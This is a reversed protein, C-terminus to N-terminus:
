LCLTASTIPTGQPIRTALCSDSQKDWLYLGLKKALARIEAKTFANERLPSRIGRQALVQMGPRRSPQDDLNSGDMLHAFGYAGAYKDIIEFIEQKCYYCRLEDNRVFNANALIDMSLMTHSIGYTTTFHVCEAADEPLLL